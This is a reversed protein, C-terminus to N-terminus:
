KFLKLIIMMCKWLLCASLSSILSFLEIEGFINLLHDVLFRLQFNSTLYFCLTWFRMKIYALCKTWYFNFCALFSELSGLCSWGPSTQYHQISFFFWMVDHLACFSCLSKEKFVIIWEIGRSYNHNHYPHTSRFFFSYLIFLFSISM